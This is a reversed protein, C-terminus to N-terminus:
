EDDRGGAAHDLATRTKRECLMRAMLRTATERVEEPLRRWDPNQHALERSTPRFLDLQLTHFPRDPRRM